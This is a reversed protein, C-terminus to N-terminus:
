PTTNETIFQKDTEDLCWRVFRTPHWCKAVLEEKLTDISTKQKLYFVNKEEKIWNVFGELVIGTSEIKEIEETHTENTLLIFKSFWSTKAYEQM